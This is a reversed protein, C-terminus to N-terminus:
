RESFLQKLVRLGQNKCFNLVTVGPNREDYGYIGLVEEYGAIDMGVHANTDGGIILGNNSPVNGIEQEVREWFGQKESAPRRVQPAYLTYAM